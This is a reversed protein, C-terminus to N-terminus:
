LHAEGCAADWGKSDLECCNSPCPDTALGCCIATFQVTLRRALLVRLDIKADSGGMTGFIFLRGDVNLSEINRMLCSAGMPDLIVDVGQGGTEEKVRKVFDQRKYNICVDAGLKKCFALKKENRSRLKRLVSAHDVGNCDDFFKISIKSRKSSGNSMSLAQVRLEDEGLTTNGSSIFEM